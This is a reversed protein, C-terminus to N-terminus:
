SFFWLSHFKHFYDFSFIVDLEFTLKTLLFKQSFGAQFNMNSMGMRTAIGLSAFLAISDKLCWSLELRMHSIHMGLHLFPTFDALFMNRLCKEPHMICSHMIAFLGFTLYTM